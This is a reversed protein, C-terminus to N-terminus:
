EKLRCKYLKRPDCVFIRPMLHSSYLCYVSFLNLTPQHSVRWSIYQKMVEIYFKCVDALLSLFLALNHAEHWKPHNTLFLSNNQSCILTGLYKAHIKKQFYQWSLFINQNKLTKISYQFIITSFLLM